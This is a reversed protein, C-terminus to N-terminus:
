SKASGAIAKLSSPPQCHADHWGEAVTGAVSEAGFQGGSQVDSDGHAIGAAHRGLDVDIRAFLVHQRCPQDLGVGIAVVRDLAAVATRKGPMTDIFVVPHVMCGRDTRREVGKARTHHCIRDAQKRREHLTAPCGKGALLGSRAQLGLHSPLNAVGIAAQEIGPLGRHVHDEPLHHLIHKESVDHGLDHGIVHVATGVVPHERDLRYPGLRARGILEPHVPGEVHDTDPREGEFIGPAIRIHRHFAILGKM